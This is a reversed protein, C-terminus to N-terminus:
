PHYSVSNFDHAGLSISLQRVASINVGPAEVAKCEVELGAEVCAIVFNCVESFGMNEQPHMLKKYLVPNDAQLGISIQDVGSEKLGAAVRFSENLAVLGNTKLRLPVGHRKEKVLRATDCVVDSRLLPEGYGAFTIPASDMDSVAILGDDFAKEVAEVLM